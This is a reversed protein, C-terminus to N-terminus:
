VFQLDLFYYFILLLNFSLSTDAKEENLKKDFTTLDETEAFIQFVIVNFWLNM